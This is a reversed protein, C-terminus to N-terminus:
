KNEIRARKGAKRCAGGKRRANSKEFATEACGGVMTAKRRKWIIRIGISDTTEIPIFAMLRRNSYSASRNAHSNCCLSFAFSICSMPSRSPRANILRCTFFKDVTQTSQSHTKGSANRFQRDINTFQKVPIRGIM